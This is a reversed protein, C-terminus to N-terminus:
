AAALHDILRGVTIPGGEFLEDVSRGPRGARAECELVLEAIDISDLGLGGEGLAVDESVEADAVRDPWRSALTERVIAVSDLRGAL